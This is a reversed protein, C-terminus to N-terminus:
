EEEWRSRHGSCIENWQCDGCIQERFGTDIIKRQIERAFEFFEMTTGESFGCRKLVKRDYTEVKEMTNCLHNENNPCAACIEDTRVVLRVSVNQEFVHLMHEMHASFGESYGKGIFYALCMGHHPRIPVAAGANRGSNGSNKSSHCM